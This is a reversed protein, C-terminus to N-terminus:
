QDRLFRVPQGKIEEQGLRPEVLALSVEGQTEYLLRVFYTEGPVCRLEIPEPPSVMMPITVNLKYRGDQLSMQLIARDTLDGLPSGVGAIHTRVTSTWKNTLGQRYEIATTTEGDDIEIWANGTQMAVTRGYIVLTCSDPRNSLPSTKHWALELQGDQYCVSGEQSCPNKEDVVVTNQAFGEEDFEIILTYRREGEGIPGGACGTQACFLWFWEAMERNSHYLWWRGDAYREQPEGLRARIDAKTSMGTEASGSVEGRFPEEEAFHTPFVCASLILSCLFALVFSNPQM